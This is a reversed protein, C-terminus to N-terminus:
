VRLLPQPEDMLEIWERRGIVNGEGHAEGSPEINGGENRRQRFDDAPM